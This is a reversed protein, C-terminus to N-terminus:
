FLCRMTMLAHGGFSSSPCGAVCPAPATGSGSVEAKRRALEAKRRALDAKAAVVSDTKKSAAVGDAYFNTCLPTNMGYRLLMAKHLQVRKREAEKQREAEAEAELAADIKRQATERQACRSRPRILM